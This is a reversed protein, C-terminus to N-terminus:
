NFRNRTVTGGLNGIPALTIGVNEDGKEGGTYDVKVATLRGQYLMPRCISRLNVNILAGPVLNEICLPADPSLKAGDPINVYLPAPNTADLHGEASTTAESDTMVSDEAAISELLGYYPDEGGATGVAAGSNGTVWWQTAAELGREEVELEVQFDEDTLGLFPGYTLDRDVIIQNGLVTFDLFNRALDRFMDGASGDLRNMVRTLTVANLGAGLSLSGLLGCPDDPSLWDTMLALVADRLRTGVFNQTVHLVRKDLWASVDRATVVVFERKYLLNTIPGFWVLSGDRYIALSRIWTRAEGLCGCCEAIDNGGVGITVTAESTEDLLRGWSLGVLQDTLDCVQNGGCRDTILVRYEGCGLRDNCAM